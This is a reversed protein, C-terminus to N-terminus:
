AFSQVLSGVLLSWGDVFVFLLLKFPLSIVVPPLVMMGMALLVTAVVIDIVLFPIYLLFGIQFATKLESILFAPVLVRAPVDARTAPRPSRDLSLFLALDKERTNRFMFERMPVMAEEVAQGETIEGAQWPELAHAHVQQFTPGMVFWTLFLALGILVQNPPAQQVGVAEEEERALEEEERQGREEQRRQQQQSSLRSELSIATCRLASWRQESLWWCRQQHRASRETLSCGRQLSTAEAASRRMVCRVLGGTQIPASSWRWWM